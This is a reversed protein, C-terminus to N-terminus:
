GYRTIHLIDHMTSPIKKSNPLCVCLGKQITHAPYEKKLLNEIETLENLQDDGKSLTTANKSEILIIETGRLMVMDPIKCKKPVQLLKGNPLDLFSRAGGAHNHFICQWNEQIFKFHCSLSAAKESSIKQPQWYEKPIVVNPLQLGELEVNIGKIAYLFKNGGSLMCQKLGHNCITIKCGPKLAHMCFCVASVLGKNPDHGFRGSKELKATVEYTGDEKQKITIATNTNSRLIMNNKQVAMEDISSFATISQFLEQGDHGVVLVGLTKLLRIGFQLSKTIKCSFPAEYFMVYTADPYYQKAIIFKILRQYASTNRSEKDTTKTGEILMVPEKINGYYVIYDVSSTTGKFLQLIVTVNASTEVTFVGDKCDTIACTVEKIDQQIVNSIIYRIVPVEPCEETYINIVKKNTSINEM